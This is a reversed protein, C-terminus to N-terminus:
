RGTADISKDYMGKAEYCEALAHLKDLLLTLQHFPLSPRNMVLGDLYSLLGMDHAPLHVEADLLLARSYGYFEALAKEVEATVWFRGMITVQFGALSLVRSM